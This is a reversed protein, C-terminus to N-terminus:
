ILGTRILVSKPMFIHSLISVPPMMIMLDLVLNDDNKTGTKLPHSGVVNFNAPKAYALKYNVDQPLSMPVVVKDKKLLSREAESVQLVYTVLDFRM